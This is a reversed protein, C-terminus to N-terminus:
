SISINGDIAEKAFLPFLTLPDKKTSISTELVNIDLLSYKYNTGIKQIIESEYQNFLEKYNYKELLDEVEDSRLNTISYLLNFLKNVKIVEQPLNVIKEYLRDIKSKLYEINRKIVKNETCCFLCNDGYYIGGCNPCAAEKKIKDVSAYLEDYFDNVVSEFYKEYEEM